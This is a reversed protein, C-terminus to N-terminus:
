SLLNNQYHLKAWHPIQGEWPLCSVLGLLCFQAPRGKPTSSICSTFYCWLTQTFSMSPFWPSLGIDGQMTSLIILSFLICIFLFICLCMGFHIFRKHCYVTNRQSILRWIIGIWESEWATKTQWWLASLQWVVWSLHDLWHFIFWLQQCRHKLLCLYHLTKVCDIGCWVSPLCHLPQHMRFGIM